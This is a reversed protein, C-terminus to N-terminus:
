SCLFSLVSYLFCLRVNIVWSRLDDQAERGLNHTLCFKLLWLENWQHLPVYISPSMPVLTAPIDAGHFDFASDMNEGDDMVVDDEIM